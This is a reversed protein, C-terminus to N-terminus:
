QLPIGYRVKRKSRNMNFYFEDPNRFAAKEKLKRLYDQKKHYDKARIVYDKHKELLGWKKRGQPQAREKHNKRPLHKKYSAATSM